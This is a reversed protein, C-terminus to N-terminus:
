GHREFFTELAESVLEPQELTSVHGAEPVVVLEAGPINQVIRRARMPPTAVDDEGVVVLSPVTIESLQDSVGSRAFIGEGFRVAAEPDLALLRRRWRAIERKNLPDERFRPGFLSKLVEGVVVSLGFFRVALMMLRYKRLAAEDEPDATTDMLVLSRLLEPRRIALRLGVFGGTSLGVFHCPACGMGEIFAVADTYITEMDYGERAVETGGHGRHDFAVCRYRKKLHEIQPRFHEGDMLYSHSFVITEPGEGEDIYHIRLGNAVIDGM